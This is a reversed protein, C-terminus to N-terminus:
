VNINMQTVKRYPTVREEGLKTLFLIQIDIVHVHDMSQYINM